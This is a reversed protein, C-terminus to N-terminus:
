IQEKIMKKYDKNTIRISEYTNFLSYKDLCKGHRKGYGCKDCNMIYKLCWPCTGITFSVAVGNNIIHKIDKYIYKCDEEKWKRIDKFDKKDAYPLGIKSIIFQNKAEVFKILKEKYTM